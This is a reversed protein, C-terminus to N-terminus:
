EGFWRQRLAGTHGEEELRLLARNVPERWPSEEPFAFAMPQQQFPAGVVALAAEPHSRVYYQLYPKDYVVAEVAGANLARCAAAGSEYPRTRHGRNRAWGEGTSGAVVGILRGELDEPGAISAEISEVTMASSLAAVFYGFIPLAVIIVVCALLRGVFKGPVKDGYGVTSATVVAWYMGELVGKGYRDDFHDKGREALWILHGTVVVLLLFGLIVKLNTGSFLTKLIAAAEGTTETPALITLGSHYTAHSFNLDRERGATATIGGIGLDARGSRLTALKGAIGPSKVYAFDVDLEGAVKEWLSIAYGEPKESDLMCFPTFPSIAVQLVPPTTPHAPADEAFSPFPCLAILLALTCGHRRHHPM